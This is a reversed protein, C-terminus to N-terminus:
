EGKTVTYGRSKIEDILTDDDLDCLFEREYEFWLKKQQNYEFKVGNGDYDCIEGSVVKNKRLHEMWCILDHVDFWDDNFEIETEGVDFECSTIEDLKGVQYETLGSEFEVVGYVSRYVGM